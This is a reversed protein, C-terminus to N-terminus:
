LPDRTPLTNYARTRKIWDAVRHRKIPANLGNVNLTIVSLYTHIAMKFRTKGNIKYKKRTGKMKQKEKQPKIIKKTTHKHERRKPKQSGITHKQNKSVRNTFYTLGKRYRSAKSQYDYLSLCVRPFFFRCKRVTRGGM